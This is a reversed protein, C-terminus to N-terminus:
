YLRPWQHGLIDPVRHLWWEVSRWGELRKHTLKCSSDKTVHLVTAALSDPFYLKLRRPVLACPPQWFPLPLTPTSQVLWSTSSMQWFSVTRSLRPSSGVSQSECGALVWPSTQVLPRKVSIMCRTESIISAWTSSTENCFSNLSLCLSLYSTSKNLCYYVGHLPKCSEIFILWAMCPWGLDMPWLPSNQCDITWQLLSHCILGSNKSHFSWSCHSFDFLYSVLTHAGLDSLTWYAAPCSCLAIVLLELFFSDTWGFHFHHEVTSKEPPLHLTWYQLSCYQIPVQFILDKFYPLNSTTLCSVALTFMLMRPILSNFHVPHAFKIWIVM